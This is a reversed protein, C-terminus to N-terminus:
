HAFKTDTVAGSAPIAAFDDRAQLLPRFAARYSWALFLELGAVLTAHPLGSPALFLHIAFINVVVPALLVLALPVFRRILLAAGALTQMAAMMPFFYGSSALGRLFAAARPEIQFPPLFQLFGNLGYVFFILGLIVRAVTTVRPIISRNM